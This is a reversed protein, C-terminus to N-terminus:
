HTAAQRAESRLSDTARRHRTLRDHRHVVPQLEARQALRQGAVQELRKRSWAM